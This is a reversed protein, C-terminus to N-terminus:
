RPRTACSGARGPWSGTWRTATRSARAPVSRRWRPRAGPRTGAAAGPLSLGTDGAVLASNARGPFGGGARLLWHGLPEEETGRWTRAAARDLTAIDTETIPSTM